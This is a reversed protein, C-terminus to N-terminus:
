IKADKMVFVSSKTQKTGKKGGSIILYNKISM